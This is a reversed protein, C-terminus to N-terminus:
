ARAILSVILYIAPVIMLLKELMIQKDIPIYVGGLSLIMCLLRFPAILVYGIAVGLFVLAFLGLFVFIGIVLGLIRGFVYFAGGMLSTNAIFEQAARFVRRFLGGVFATMGEKIMYIISSIVSGLTFIDMGQDGFFSFDFCLVLVAMTGYGVVGIIVSTVFSWFSEAFEPGFGKGTKRYLKVQELNGFLFIIALIFDVIVITILLKGAVMSIAMYKKMDMNALVTFVAFFPQFVMKVFLALIGFVICVIGKKKNREKAEISATSTNDM